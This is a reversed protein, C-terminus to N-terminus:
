CTYGKLKADDSNFDLTRKGQLFEEFEKADWGMEIPDIRLDLM